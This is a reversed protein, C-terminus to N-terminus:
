VTGPDMTSICSEMLIRISERDLARGRAKCRAFEEAGLVAEAATSIRHVEIDGLDEMGRLNIGAGLLEAARAPDGMVLMLDAFTTCVLSVVPMDKVNHAIQLAEGLRGRAADLDGIAIDFAALGSLIMATIQPPVFAARDIRVLAAEALRRAEITNGDHHALMAMGFQAYASSVSVGSDDALQMATEIDRRAGQIDNNRLRLMGMRVLSHSEDDRATLQHMMQRAEDLAEIAGTLNGEAGARVAVSALAAGMGWRDGLERFGSLALPLHHDLRDIEGDNEGIMAGMMHLMARAWPDPHDLNAEIASWADQGDNQFLSIGPKILALLPHATALDLAEVLVGLEAIEEQSPTVIGLAAASIMYVARAILYAEQSREGPVALALQLWVAAEDHRGRLTWYWSLAAGLRIATDADSTDAAYRLAALLNDREVTLQDLWILQDAGRLKPEATEALELFHRTHAARLRTGEGRDALRETAFERITELMRYRTEGAQDPGSPDVPVLLSKDALSLLLDAVLEEAEDRDAEADGAAVSCIAAAAKPSAGGPFVSLQEALRRESETLLDWSWAVVARLTQHRPMATRNGGTLLRFRNGLRAAIAEVPLSRLRAAALEIALPLGDLRRCIEGVTAANAETLAFGPRVLAARDVFLKVSPTDLDAGAPEEAKPTPLPQVPWLSEGVIGLPERSTALVTLRPCMGLLYEALKAAADLLHECNDLILIVDHEAVTEVLRTLADRNSPTSRELMAQDLTGISGLATSAVDDPDTVPALQVMWVGDLGQDTLERAAESALRTKGAGGTGVLTVLRSRKIAEGLQLLELERGVFSTLPSRLNTRRPLPAIATGAPRETAILLQSDDRLVATQLQQLQVPPDLGLEDALARRLQEYVALAEAQRGNGALARILLEHSRERLPHQATVEELEPILEAHRGLLLAAEVRTDIATLRLKDLRETLAMAYPVDAVETLPTGRWLRLAETLVATAEQPDGDNLRRRGLNVLQEFRVADVNEPAVVLRYGAPGSEILAPRATSRRLRSVLSQLANIEDAPPEQGWLDDVLTSVSVWGGAQVALRILLARLRAGGVEISQAEDAVVLPGLIGVHVLDLRVALGPISDM